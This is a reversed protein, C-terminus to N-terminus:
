KRLIIKNYYAQNGSIVEVFYIGNSYKRLDIIESYNDSTKSILIQGSINTVKYSYDTINKTRLTFIGSSPNPYIFINNNINSVDSSQLVSLLFTQSISAGAFDEATLNISYTGINESSPAGYFKLSNKDFRIWSPLEKNNKLTASYLLNYGDEDDEFTEKPIFFEFYKDTYVFKDKIEENIFPTHNLNFHLVFRDDYRGANEVDFNLTKKEKLNYINETYRDELYIGISDPFYEILNTNLLYDGTKQANFGLPVSHSQKSTIFPIGQFVFNESGIESYFSFNPNGEIKYGDYEPDRDFTADDIMGIVIENYSNDPNKLSLKIKPVEKLESKFYYSNETERMNNNFNLNSGSVDTSTRHVFFAQGCSIYNDPIVSGSGSGTAGGLTSNYSAYDAGENDFGITGSEDWFYLTGDIISSNASIFADANLGSPYPNGILNWGRHPNSGTPCYTDDQNTTNYSFNGTNLSVSTGTFQVINSCTGAYTFYAYGNAPILPDNNHTYYWPWEWGDLWDIDGDNDYDSSFAENYDLVNGNYNSGCINETLVKNTVGTLPSSLYHWADPTIYRDIFIDGDIRVQNFGASNLDTFSGTGNIDSQIYFDGYVHLGYTDNITVSAKPEILLDECEAGAVDIIPFFGGKPTTPIIAEITSTPVAVSWNEKITWDTNSGPSMIDDGEWFNGVTVLFPEENYCGHSDTVIVSMDSYGYQNTAPIIDVTKDPATGGFIINNAYDVPVLTTNSSSATYSTIDSLGDDDNVTFSIVPITHSNRSIFQDDIESITPAYFTRVAVTANDANNSYDDDKQSSALTNAYAIVNSNGALDNQVTGSFVIRATDGNAIFPIRWYGSKQNYTSGDEASYDNPIMGLPVQANVTVNYANDPGHNIVKVTYEVDNYVCVTTQDPTISVELDSTQTPTNGFVMVRHMGNSLDHTGNVYLRGNLDFCISYPYWMNRADASGNNDYGDNFYPNTDFNPQGLVYDADAYNYAPVNNYMAVRSNGFDAIALKGEVSCTISPQNFERKTTGPMKQAYVNNGIVIDASAGNSIPVDNFILIRHNGGSNPDGNDSILLKGEPSYACDWPTDLQDAGSGASNSTFDPQGIVVDASAGNTSPISNFILVRNNGDDTIILRGDPLVLVGTPGHLKDATCGSTSTVFDTQGIVVDAAAGNSTPVSNYILVRNNGADAIILKNGDPSFCVNFPNDLEAASCGSSSSTFDTQGVVVDAQVGNTEPLNNWLLIRNASSSGVALVGKSSVSSSNAGASTSRNITNSTSTFNTQGVVITADEWSYYKQMFLPNFIYVLGETLYTDSNIDSNEANYSVRPTTAPTVSILKNMCTGANNIGISASGGSPNHMLGYWFEIVYSTEYLKVQFNQRTGGWLVDLWEITFVRTPTNGDVRYIIRTQADAVLDDWLPAVFPTESTSTLDNTQANGSHTTGMELWGNVNARVASIATGDYQFDFGSPLSINVGDNGDPTAVTGTIQKFIDHRYSFNYNFDPIGNITINDVAFPPNSGGSGDNQWRFGIYFQQGDVVSLDYTGTTWSGQGSFETENAISWDTGNTSWMIQGYDYDSEGQCQWDFSITVDRYGTADILTTYHAVEDGDNNNRYQFANTGRYITLCHGNGGGRNGIGWDNPSTITETYSWNGTGDLDAMTSIADFDESYILCGTIDVAIESSPYISNLSGDSATLMVFEGGSTFMFNNPTGFNAIGNSFSMSNNSMTLSGTNSLTCTSNIQLDRNGNEDTAEVIPQQTLAIGSTATSSPQGTFLLQSATVTVENNSAGSNESEGSNFGSSGSNEVSFSSNTVEFVINLGDITTKLTGALSSKLWIKLSYTKNGNDSIYGFDGSSADTISSFTINSSNITGSISNTGDSLVAGAIAQTWDAIDNGTGQGIILQNFKTPLADTGPTAGDDTVTFDFNIVAESQTDYISPITAPESTIGATITNTGSIAPDGNVAYDDIYWESAYNGIYQFAIYATGTYGSIDFTQQVWTDETGITSNLTTWTATTPDGSGSYDTSILVNHQDAWSGYNVNEYYSVVENNYSNLDISNSILWVENDGSFDDFFASYTGSNARSSTQAWNNTGIEQWQTWGAPPVASEFGESTILLKSNIKTKSNAKKNVESYIEPEIIKEKTITNDFNISASVNQFKKTNKTKQEINEKIIKQAFLINYNGVFIFITILFLNLQKSKHNKM